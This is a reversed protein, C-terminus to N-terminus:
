LSASETGPPMIANLLQRADEESMASIKKLVSEEIQPALQAITPTDFITRLSLDVGFTDRIRAILQTALLSHGGLNFFNDDVAVADMGLLKGLIRALREEVASSPQSVARDQLINSSNPAPLAARDIKGNPTLPLREIDVFIAPVMFAPLRQALFERLESSKLEFGPKRVVYAVLKKSSGADDRAIVAATGIGSHNELVRVIQNPEIRHGSIKIQDDVRGLFAIEGSPLLRGLDGTRYLRENGFQPDANTVFCEATLEPRNRYGRALSPGAIFIEGSEGHAAPRLDKGLLQVRTNAIPCGITPLFTSADADPSVVGSTAVVTCETPGYNNVLQFPLGPKPFRHLTDAGTLLTRLAANAPWSLEILSEAIATPVFCITIRNEVIWDRLPEAQVRISDPVFQVTAGATLYPWIEWVAADFSLSSFQAAIDGAAVGFTKQHWQVLHLLSRHEIEVGKPKGTSGSTYIVYALSDAAVPTTRIGAASEPSDGDLLVVSRNSCFSANQFSKNTAVASVRADDLIGAVHEFPLSADLPLYAGGAKLVALAGVVFSPERRSVVAVVDDSGIGLKKLSYALRDAQRNVESYSLSTTNSRIAVADPVTAVQEEFLELVGDFEISIRRGAVLSSSVPDSASTAL